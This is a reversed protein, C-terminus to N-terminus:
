GRHRHFREIARAAPTRAALVTGELHWRFETGMGGHRARTRGAASRRDADAAIRYLADGRLVQSRRALRFQGPWRDASLPVLVAAGDVGASRLLGYRWASPVQRDCRRSHARIEEAQRHGGPGAREDRLCDAAARAETRRRHLAPCPGAGRVDFLRSVRTRRIRAIPNTRLQIAPLDDKGDDWRSGSDM